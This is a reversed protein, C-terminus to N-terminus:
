IKLRPPILEFNISNSTSNNYPIFYFIRDLRFSIKQKLWIFNISHLAEKHIIYGKHIIYDIFEYM